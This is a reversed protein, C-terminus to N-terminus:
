IGELDMLEFDSGGMKRVMAYVGDKIGALLTLALKQRDDSVAGPASGPLPRATPVPAAGAAPGWPGFGPITPGAMKAAFAAAGGLVAAAGAVGTVAAGPSSVAASRFANQSKALYENVRAIGEASHSLAGDLRRIAAMHEEAAGLEQNAKSAARAYTLWSISGSGLLGNLDGLRKRYKEVPSQVEETLRAGELALRASEAMAVQEMSAGHLKLKYVEVQEATMGITAAQERWQSTLKSADLALMSKKLEDVMGSLMPIGPVDGLRALSEHFRKAQVEAESLGVESLQQKVDALATKVDAGLMSAGLGPLRDLLDAKKAPDSVAEVSKALERLKQQYKDIGAAGWVKSNEEALKNLDTEAVAAKIADITTKVKDAGAANAGLKALEENLKQVAKEPGPLNVGVMERMADKLQEAATQAMHKMQGSPDVAKGLLAQLTDVYDRAAKLRADYQSIEQKTADSQVSNRGLLWSWSDAPRNKASELNQKYQEVAKQARALEAQIASAREKADGINGLADTLKSREGAQQKLGAENLRQGEAMAANFAKVSPLSNFAATGLGYAAAAAAGVAVAWATVPNAAMAPGIAGLAAPIAKIAGVAPGVVATVVSIAPGVALIAAAGAAAWVIVRKTTEGLETFGKALGTLWNLMPIAGEAVTAGFQRTLDGVAAAFRAYTVTATGGAQQQAALAIRVMEAAKALKLSEDTIGRLAPVHHLMAANQTEVAVALMLAHEASTGQTASLAEAARVASTAAAGTLGLTTAYQLLGRTQGLSAGTLDRMSKAFRDFTEMTSAVDQGTAQVAAQLQVLSAEAEAFSSFASKLFAGAGLAAAFQVVGGGFGEVNKRVAEIQQGAQAIQAAVAQTKVQAMSLMQLYSSGDGQLRVVLREIETEAAM